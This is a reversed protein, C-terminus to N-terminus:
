AALQCLQNVIGQLKDSDVPKTVFENFGARFAEIRDADGTRATVAVLITRAQNANARVARAFDHGSMGPLSVDVLAIDPAFASFLSMAEEATRATRAEYGWARCFLAYTRATDAHDDVILVRCPELRNERMGRMGEM